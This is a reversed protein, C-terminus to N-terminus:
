LLEKVFYSASSWIFIAPLSPATAVCRKRTDLLRPLTTLKFWCCRSLLWLGRWSGVGWTWFLLKRWLCKEVILSAWFRLVCSGCYHPYCCWWLSEGLCVPCVPRGPRPSPRHDAPPQLSPNPLTSPPLSPNDKTNYQITNNYWVGPVPILVVALTMLQMIDMLLVVQVVLSM